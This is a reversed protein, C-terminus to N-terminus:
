IYIYIYACLAHGGSSKTHRARRPTTAPPPPPAGYRWDPNAFPCEKSGDPPRLNSYKWHVAQHHVNDDDCTTSIITTM